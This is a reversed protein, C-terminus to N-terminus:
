AKNMFKKRWEKYVKLAEDESLVFTDVLRKIVKVPPELEGYKNLFEDIKEEIVENM